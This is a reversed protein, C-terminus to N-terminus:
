MLESSVNLMTHSGVVLFMIFIYFKCSSFLGPMVPIGLICPYPDYKRCCTDCLYVVCVVSTCCPPLIAYTHRLYPMLIAYTHCLYLTLIAYTHVTIAYKIQSAMEAM